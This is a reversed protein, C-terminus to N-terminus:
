ISLDVKAMKSADINNTKAFSAINKSTSGVSKLLGPASKAIALGAGIGRIDKANKALLVTNTMGAVYPDMGEMFKKKAADNLPKADAMAKNIQDNASETQSSSDKVVSSSVNGSKLQKVRANAQDAVDKLGLAEAFKAQANSLNTVADVYNKTATKTGEDDGTAMSKASGLDFAMASVSFAFVMLIATKRFM